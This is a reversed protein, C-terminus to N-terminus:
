ARAPSRQHAAERGQGAAQVWGLRARAPRGRGKRRVSRVCGLSERQVGPVATNWYVTTSRFAGESVAVAVTVMTTGAGGAWGGTARSSAYVHVLPCPGQKGCILTSAFSLEGLLPASVMTLLVCGDTPPTTM